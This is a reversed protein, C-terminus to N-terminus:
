PKLKIFIIIILGIILSCGLSIAIIQWANLINTETNKSSNSIKNNLSDFANKWSSDYNNYKSESQKQGSERIYVTPQYVKITTDFIFVERSWKESGNQSVSSVSVNGSDVRHTSDVINTYSKKAKTIDCSYLFLTIFLLTIFRRYHNKRGEKLSEIINKDM